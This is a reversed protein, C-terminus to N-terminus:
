ENKDDKERPKMIDILEDETKEEGKELSTMFDKIAVIKDKPLSFFYETADYAGQNYAILDIIFFLVALCWIRADDFPLDLTFICLVVAVYCVLRQMAKGTLLEWM